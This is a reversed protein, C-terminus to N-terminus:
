TTAPDRVVTPSHRFFQEVDQEYRYAPRRTGVTKHLRVAGAFNAV